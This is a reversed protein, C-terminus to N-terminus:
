KLAEAVASAKRWVQKKCLMLVCGEVDLTDAGVRTLVARYTQGDEPNYIQGSWSGDTRLKLGSLISLGLLPRTRLAVDANNADLRPLGREDVADWLWRITGCLTQADACRALDVVASVGPTAWHGMVDTQALAPAVVISVLTSIAVLSKV